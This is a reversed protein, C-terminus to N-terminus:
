LSSVGLPTWRQTRREQRMEGPESEYNMLTPEPLQAPIPRLARTNLVGFAGGTHLRAGVYVGCERCLLFQTNRTGFLYRQVFEINRAVFTLTGAPDSTSLAAHARCFACQCARVAWASVRVDTRYHAELAGCHCSALYENLGNM